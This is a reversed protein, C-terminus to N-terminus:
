DQNLVSLLFPAVTMHIYRLQNLLFQFLWIGDSLLQESLDEVQLAGLSCV